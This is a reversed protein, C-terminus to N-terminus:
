CSTRGTPSRIPTCTMYNRWSPWRRTAWSRRGAGGQGQIGSLAHPPTKQEHKSRNECAIDEGEPATDVRMSSNLNAPGARVFTTTGIAVAIPVINVTLFALGVGVAMADISTGLGTAALVWFSHRSPKEEVVADKALSGYIMRLGLGGLPLFAIWHDFAKVYEAAALGLAWGIVPTIAEITGFIAGTRLAELFSPKHLSAGKGIAAAFADTSM